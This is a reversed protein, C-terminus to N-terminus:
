KYVQEIVKETAETYKPYFICNQSAYRGSSYAANVDLGIEDWKFNRPDTRQHIAAVACHALIHENDLTVSTRDAIEQLLNDLAEYMANEYKLGCYELVKDKDYSKCKQFYKAGAKCKKVCSDYFEPMTNELDIGISVNNWSEAHWGVRSEDLLQYIKGTRSIFYHSSIFVPRGGKTNRGSARLVWDNVMSGATAGGEHLIVYKIDTLKRAMKSICDLKGLQSTDIELDTKAAVSPTSNCDVANTPITYGPSSGGAGPMHDLAVKINYDFDEAEITQIQVAPLNVLAPNILYLLLYSSLILLMGSISGVVLKKATAINEPRAGASMYLIGGIMIAIVAAIMAIVLGYGYVAVIYEATYPINAKTGPAVSLTSWAPLGPILVNMKPPTLVTKEVPFGGATEVRGAAITADTVFYKAPEGDKQCFNVGRSLPSSGADACKYGEGVGPMNVCDEDDDCACFWLKQTGYAVNSERCAGSACMEDRDPACPQGMDRLTTDQALAAAPPLLLLCFISIFPFFKKM